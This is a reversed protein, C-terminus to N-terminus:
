RVLPSRVEFRSISAAAPGEMRFPFYRGSGKAMGKPANEAQRTTDRRPSLASHPKVREKGHRRGTSDRQTENQRPFQRATWCVSRRDRLTPAVLRPTGQNATQRRHIEN